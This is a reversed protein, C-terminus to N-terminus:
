QACVHLEHVPAMIFDPLLWRHYPEQRQVPGAARWASPWECFHLAGGPFHMECRLAADPPGPHPSLHHLTQVRHAVTM